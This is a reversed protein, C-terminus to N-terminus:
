EQINYLILLNARQWDTIKTDVFHITLGAYIGLLFAVGIIITVLCGIFWKMTRSM